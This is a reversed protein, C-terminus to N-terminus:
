ASMTNGFLDSSTTAPRPPRENAALEAESSEGIRIVDNTLAVPIDARVDQSPNLARKSVIGYSNGTTAITDLLNSSSPLLAQQDGVEGPYSAPGDPSIVPSVKDDLPLGMRPVGIGFGVNAPAPASGATFLDWRDPRSYSSVDKDVNDMGGETGGNDFWTTSGVPRKNLLGSEDIEVYNNTDGTSPLVNDAPM